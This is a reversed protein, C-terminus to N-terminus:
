NAKSESTPAALLLAKDIAQRLSRAALVNGRLHAVVVQENMVGDPGVSTCSASLTIKVVGNAFGFAPAAEFFIFPAHPTDSILTAAAENSRTDPSDAMAVGGTALVTATSGSPLEAANHHHRLMRPGFGIPFCAASVRIAGRRELGECAVGEFRCDIIV